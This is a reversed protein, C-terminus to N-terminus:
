FVVTGTAIAKPIKLRPVANLLGILEVATPQTIYENWFYFSPRKVAPQGPNDSIFEGCHIMDVWEDDVPPMFTACNAPIVPTLTGTGGTYTPDTGGDAVLVESTIHWKLQPFGRLVAYQDGDNDKGTNTYGFVEFATNASGGANIVETNTQVYAWVQPSVWVDSPAMGTLRVYADIIAPLHLSIIKAAPNAWSLNIIAGTGLMDLQGLNGAPLQLDIVIRIGGPDTLYPIFDEGVPKLYWKGRVVGASMMEVANNFRKVIYKTQEELYKQGGADVTSNPGMVKSLNALREYDLRVKEHFRACTYNVEGIPQPQWTAPGTGPARGKAVTRTSDFIRYSGYRTPSETTNPGSLVGGGEDFQTYHFGFHKGLRGQGTKMRSVVDLIVQPQLLDNLTAVM